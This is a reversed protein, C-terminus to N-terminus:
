RSVRHWLEEKGGSLRNSLKAGARMSGDDDGTSFKQAVEALLRRPYLRM